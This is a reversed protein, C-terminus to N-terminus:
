NGQTDRGGWEVCRSNWGKRGLFYIVSDETGQALELLHETLRLYTDPGHAPYRTSCYAHLFKKIQIESPPCNIFKLAAKIDESTKCNHTMRSYDVRGLTVVPKLHLLAEFGAGSNVTVVARAERMFEHVSVKGAIEVNKFTGAGLIQNLIKNHRSSEKPHTKYLIPIGFSDLIPLANLLTKLYGVSTDGHPDPWHTFSCATDGSVQGLFLIYPHKPKFRIQAPQAYKSRNGTVYTKHLHAFTAEANKELASEVDLAEPRLALSNGGSYGERDFIIYELLPSSMICWINKCIKDLSKFREAHHILHRNGHPVLCIDIKDKKTTTGFTSGGDVKVNFNKNLSVSKAIMEAYKADACSKGPANRIAAVLVNIKNAM